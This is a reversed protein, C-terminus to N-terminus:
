RDCGNRADSSPCDASSSAEASSSPTSLPSEVAAAAARHTEGACRRLKPAAGPLLVADGASRGRLHPATCFFIKATLMLMLTKTVCCTICVDHWLLVAARSRECLKWVGCLWSM